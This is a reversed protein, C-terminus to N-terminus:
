KLFDLVASSFGEPDEIYLFNGTGPLVVKSANPLNSVMIDVIENYGCAEGMLVLTATPKMIPLRAVMDYWANTTSHIRAWQGGQAREDNLQDIWERKPNVFHRVAKMEEADMRLPLGVKDWLHGLGASRQAATRPDAVPPVALVLREVREPYSAAMEISLSAGALNGIFHAKAISLAQMAQYITRAHDPISFSERPPGDSQGHGLVDFGYCTFHKGLVEMMPLWSLTSSGGAHLIVVPYGSGNKVFHIRGEPVQVFEDPHGSAVM